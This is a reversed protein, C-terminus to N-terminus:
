FLGAIRSALVALNTHSSLSAPPFPHLALSCCFLGTNWYFGLVAKAKGHLCIAMEREQRDRYRKKREWEM